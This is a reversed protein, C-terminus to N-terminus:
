HLSVETAMKDVQSFSSQDSVEGGTRTKNRRELEGYSEEVIKLCVDICRSRLSTKDGLQGIADGAVLLAAPSPEARSEVPESGACGATTQNSMLRAFLNAVLLLRETSPPFSATQQVKQNEWLRLLCNAM